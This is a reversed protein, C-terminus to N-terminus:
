TCYVNNPRCSHAVQLSQPLQQQREALELHLVHTEEVLDAFLAALKVVSVEAISCLNREYTLQIHHCLGGIVLHRSYTDSEAFSLLPEQM